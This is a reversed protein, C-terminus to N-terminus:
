VAAPRVPRVGVVRYCIPKKNWSLPLMLGPMPLYVHQALASCTCDLAGDRARRGVALITHRGVGDDRTAVRVFAATGPVLKRDLVDFLSRHGPLATVLGDDPADLGFHKCAVSLVISHGPPKHTDGDVFAGPVLKLEENVIRPTITARGWLRLLEALANEVCGEAGITVGEKGTGLIDSHWPDSGQWFVSV